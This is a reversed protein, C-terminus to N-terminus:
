WCIRGPSQSKCHSLSILAHPAKLSSHKGCHLPMLYMQRSRTRARPCPLELPSIVTQLDINLIVTQACINESCIDCSRWILRWSTAVSATPAQWWLSIALWQKSGGTICFSLNCPPLAKLGLLQWRLLPIGVLSCFLLWRFCKLCHYRSIHKSRYFIEYRREKHWLPRRKPRSLVVIQASM